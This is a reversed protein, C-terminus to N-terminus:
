RCIEMAEFSILLRKRTQLDDFDLDCLIESIKNLRHALTNRHIHLFEAAAVMSRELNIYTKLTKYLESNTQTDYELLYNLEPQILIKLNNENKFVDIIHEFSHEFYHNIRKEADSKTNKLVWKAQSYYLPTDYYGMFVDSIAIDCQLIDQIKSLNKRLNSHNAKNGHSFLLCIIDGILIPKSYFFREIQNAIRENSLGFDPPIRFTIVNFYDTRSFGLSTMQEDIRSNNFIKGLFLDQMFSEYFDGRTLRYHRNNTLAYVVYENLLNALEVDSQSIEKLRGVIFLHGQIKKDFKLNSNIFPCGFLKSHVIKSSDDHELLGLEGSQILRSVRYFPLYGEEEMDKWLKSINRMNMRYELALIKFSSDAIYAPNGFIDYCMEVLKQLDHQMIAVSKFDEIKRRLDSFLKSFENFTEILSLSSSIFLYDCNLEYNAYIDSEFEEKSLVCIVGSLPNIKDLNQPLGECIYLVCNECDANETFFRIDSFKNESKNFLKMKCNEINIRESILLLSLEM